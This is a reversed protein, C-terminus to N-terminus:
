RLVRINKVRMTSRYARPTRNDRRIFALAGSSWTAYVRYIHISSVFSSAATYNHMPPADHQAFMMMKYM